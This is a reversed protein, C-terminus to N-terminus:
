LLEREGEKGKVLNVQNSGPHGSKLSLLLTGMEGKLTGRVSGTCPGSGVAVESVATCYPVSQGLYLFASGFFSCMIMIARFFRSSLSEHETRYCSGSPVPSQTWLQAPCSTRSPTPVLIATYMAAVLMQTCHRLWKTCTATCHPQGQLQAEHSGQTFQPQSLGLFYCVFGPSLGLGESKGNGIGHQRGM